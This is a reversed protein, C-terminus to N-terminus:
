FNYKVSNANHHNFFNFQEHWYGAVILINKSYSSMSWSCSRCTATWGGNYNQTQAETLKKM